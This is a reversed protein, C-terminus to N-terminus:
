NVKWLAIDFAKKVEPEPCNYYCKSGSWLDTHGTAQAFRAHYLIIGKTSPIDSFNLATGPQKSIGWYPEGLMKNLYDFFTAVRIIVNNGQSDKHGGDKAGYNASIKYKGGIRNFAISM